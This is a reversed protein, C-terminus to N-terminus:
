FGKKIFQEIFDFDEKFRKGLTDKFKNRIEILTAALYKRSLIICYLFYNLDSESAMGRGNINNTREFSLSLPHVLNSLHRYHETLNSCVILKEEFYSKSKYIEYGRLVQNKEETELSQLFPHNKLREKKAKLGEEFEQYEL